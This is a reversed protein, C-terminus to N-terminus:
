GFDFTIGEVISPHNFVYFSYCFFSSLILATLLLRQVLKFKLFAIIYLLPYLVSAYLELRVSFKQVSAFLLIFTSLLLLLRIFATFIKDNDNANETSKIKKSTYLFYLIINNFILSTQKLLFSSDNVEFESYIDIKDLLFDLKSFELLQIFIDTFSLPISLLLFYFLTSTKIRYPIILLISLLFFSISKHTYFSLVFCSAIILIKHKKNTIWCSFGFLAISFALGQRIVNGYLLYSSSTCTLCYLFWSSLTYNRPFINNISAIILAFSFFSFFLLYFTSNETLNSLILGILFFFYEGKWAFTGAFLSDLSKNNKFYEVYRWTDSDLPINRLGFLTAFLIYQSLIIAKKVKSSKLVSSLISSILILLSSSFVIYNV